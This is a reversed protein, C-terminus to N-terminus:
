GNDNGGAQGFVAALERARKDARDLDDKTWRRIFLMTNPPVEAARWEAYTFCEGGATPACANAYGVCELDETGGKSVLARVAYLAEITAVVKAEMGDVADTRWKIGNRGANWAIRIYRLMEDKEIISDRGICRTADLEQVVAAVLGGPIFDTAAPHFPAAELMASWIGAWSKRIRRRWSACYQETLQEPAGFPPNQLDAVALMEETPVRPVMVYDIV